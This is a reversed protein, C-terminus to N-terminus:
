FPSQWLTSGTAYAVSYRIASCIQQLSRSVAIVISQGFSARAVVENGSRLRWDRQGPPPPPSLLRVIIAFLIAAGESDFTLAGQLWGRNPSQVWLLHTNRNTANTMNDPKSVRIM